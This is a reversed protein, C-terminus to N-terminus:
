DLSLPQHLIKNDLWCQGARMTLRDECFLATAYPYIRHEQALVRAALTQPNDDEKVIVRAQIILPGGDLESTVFHVSCGHFHEDAELARRHTNLGKYAPLLSPHINLICGEFTKVFDPSLVRMFGALLILDPYYQQIDEILSTEFHTNAPSTTKADVVSTAIQEHKAKELAVAEPRDSIVCVIKGNISSAKVAAILADLNSGRGSVLVVIRKM